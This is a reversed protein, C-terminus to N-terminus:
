SEVMVISDMVLLACVGRVNFVGVFVSVEMPIV